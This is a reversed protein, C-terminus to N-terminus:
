EYRNYDNMINFGVSDLLGVFEAAGDSAGVIELWGVVVEAGDADGVVDFSGESFGVVEGESEGVM